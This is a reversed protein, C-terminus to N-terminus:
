RVATAEVEVALGPLALRSVELLTGASRCGAARLRGVAEGYAPYFADLDTTFWNLRVVDALAMGGAALVAELNDLALHVQAVVDGAHQPVGDADVATQGACFLTRTAGDVLNAQEYGHEAAWTWPNVPTTAATRLDTTTSM